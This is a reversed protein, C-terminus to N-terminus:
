QFMRYKMSQITLVLSFLKKLPNKHCKVPSLYTEFMQNKFENGRNKSLIKIQIPDTKFM